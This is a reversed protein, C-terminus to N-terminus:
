SCYAIGYLRPTYYAISDLTTYTCEIVNACRRFRRIVCIESRIGTKLRRVDTFAHKKAVSYRGFTACHTLLSSSLVLFSVTPIIRSVFADLQRTTSFFVVVFRLGFLWDEHRCEFRSGGSYLTRM